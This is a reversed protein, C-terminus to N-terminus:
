RLDSHADKLGLTPEREQPHVPPTARAFFSPARLLKKLPRESVVLRGTIRDADSRPERLDRNRVGEVHSPLGHSIM